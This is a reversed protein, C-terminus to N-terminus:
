DIIEIYVSSLAKIFIDIDYTNVAVERMSKSISELKFRHTLAYDIKYALAEANNPEFLFEQFESLIDRIGPVDSGIVLCESSMAELPAIPLGEGRELTPIVFIDAINLFPRVDHQGGMFRIKDSNYQRKLITGYESDTNGVILTTINYDNLLNVANILVEIGKVAVLNAVTIVILTEPNIDLESRLKANPTQPKFFSTDVGLPIYDVNSTKNFFRSIMDTNIAIVKSSLKTRWLWSKNGWGMSKKTYVFPIGALKAALPETFDSSWHWSHIIDFNNSKFFRAIKFIRLPLTLFPRYPVTFKFVHVKVNLKEIEKFFEGQKHFCCIEPDFVKRDLRKIIDYVVRGSGSSQFNTITFLIKIRRAM